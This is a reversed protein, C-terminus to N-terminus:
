LVGLIEIWGEPTHKAIQVPLDWNLSARRAIQVAVIPNQANLVATYGRRFKVAYQQETDQYM